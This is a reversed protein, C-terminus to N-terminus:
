ATGSIPAETHCTVGDRFGLYPRGARGLVTKPWTNAKCGMMVNLKKHHLQYEEEKASSSDPALLSSIVQRFDQLGKEPSLSAAVAFVVHHKSSVLGQESNNVWKIRM